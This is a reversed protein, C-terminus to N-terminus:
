QRWRNTQARADEWGFRSNKKVFISKNPASLALGLWWIEAQVPRIFETRWDFSPCYNVEPSATQDPPPLSVFDFYKKNQPWNRPPPLAVGAIQLHYVREDPANSLNQWKVLWFRVIISKPPPSKTPPTSWLNTAMTPAHTFSLFRNQM